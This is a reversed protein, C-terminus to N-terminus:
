VLDGNRGDVASKASFPNRRARHPRALATFGMGASFPRMALSRAFMGTRLAPKGGM